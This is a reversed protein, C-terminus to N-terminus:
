MAPESNGSAAAWNMGIAVALIGLVLHGAALGLTYTTRGDNWLRVLELGFSSYTTLGGLLGVRTGVVWWTSMCQNQMAWQALAGIAFCGAVNAVLTAIPLWAPGILSFAGSLAHRLMVGLMGGVAVAFWEKLM